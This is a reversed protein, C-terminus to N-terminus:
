IGMTAPVKGDAVRVVVWTEVMFVVRINLDILKM